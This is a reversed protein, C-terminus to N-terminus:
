KNIWILTKNHFICEIKKISKDIAKESSYSRHFKIAKLTPRTLFPIKKNFKARVFEEKEAVRVLRLVGSEDKKILDSM